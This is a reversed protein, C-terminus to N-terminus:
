KGVEGQPSLRWIRVRGGAGGAALLGKSAALETVEEGRDAALTLSVSVAPNNLEYLRIRGDRFGIAAGLGQIILPSGCAHEGVPWAESTRSREFFIGEPQVIVGHGLGALAFSRCDPSVREEIVGSDTNIRVLTSEDGFVGFLLKGISATPLHTQLSGPTGDLKCNEISAQARLEAKALSLSGGESHLFAVRASGPQGIVRSPWGIGTESRFLTELRPKAGRPDIISLNRVEISDASGFAVVIREDLPLLAQRPEANTALTWSAKLSPKPNALQALPIASIRDEAALLLNGYHIAARATQRANTQFRAEISTELDLAAVEGEESIAILYGDYFLLGSCSAGLKLTNVEALEINRLPGRPDLPSFSRRESGGRHGVWDAPQEGMLQGCERCFRALRRNEERCRTCVKIRGACQPCREGSSGSRRCGPYPCKGM